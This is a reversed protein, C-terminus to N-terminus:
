GSLRRRPGWGGSPVLGDAGGQTGCGVKQGGEGAACESRDGDPAGEISVVGVLGFM